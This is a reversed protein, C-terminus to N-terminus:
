RVRPRVRKKHKVKGRSISMTAFSSVTREGCPCSATVKIQTNLPINVLYLRAVGDYETTFCDSESESGGSTTDEPLRCIFTGANATVALRVQPKPTGEDDTLTASVLARGTTNEMKKDPIVSIKVNIRCTETVYENEDPIDYAATQFVTCFLFLSLAVKKM